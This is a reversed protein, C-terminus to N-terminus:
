FQNDREELIYFSELKVERMITPSQFVFLM